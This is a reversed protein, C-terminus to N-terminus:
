LYPSSFSHLQETPAAGNEPKPPKVVTWVRALIIGLFVTPLIPIRFSGTKHFDIVANGLEDAVRREHLQLAKGRRAAQLCVQQGLDFIKVGRATYLVADGTGHQVIGLLAAQQLRASDDDLRRAAVGADAKGGHRGRAAIADDQGHRLGHADLAAVQELSIARLEDQRVARLAHLTGNGLRLLDGRLRGAAEQGALKRIRGVGGDVAGRGARLDPLIRIAGDINENRADAGAAGNRARAFIQLRLVRVHVDDRNLRGTRGDQGLSRGARM